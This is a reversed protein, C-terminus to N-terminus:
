LGLIEKGKGSKSREGQIFAKLKGMNAELQIPTTIVPAYRHTNTQALVEIVRDLQPRPYIVLMRAVAERQNKRAFLTRYSPNVEKFLDIIEPIDKTTGDSAVTITDTNEKKEKGIRGQGLRDKGIRDMQRGNSEVGAWLTVVDHNNLSDTDQNKLKMNCEFCIVSINEVRHEGGRSIRKNHQISAQNSGGQPVGPFYMTRKCTPCEKGNFLPLLKAKFNSPLYKTSARQQSQSGVPLGTDARPKPELIKVDPLVNVLLERYISNVKRDARILNHETWDMIVSVLEENLPRIFNKAILVKFDDEMAKVLRMVTFAEVVGDDDADMCLHFYLAQASQSM